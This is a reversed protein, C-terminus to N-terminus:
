QNTSWDSVCRRPDRLLLYRQTNGRSARPALFIPRAEPAYAAPSRAIISPSSPTSSVSTQIWPVVDPISAGGSGVEVTILSNSCADPPNTRAGVLRRGLHHEVARETPSRLRIVVRQAGAARWAQGPDNLQLILHALEVVFKRVLAISVFELLFSVGAVLLRTGFFQTSLLAMPDVDAAFVLPELLTHVAQM